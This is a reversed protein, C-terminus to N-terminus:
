VTPKKTGTIQTVASKLGEDPAPRPPSYAKRFAQITGSMSKPKTKEVIRREILQKALQEATIGLVAATKELFELDDDDVVQRLSLEDPM